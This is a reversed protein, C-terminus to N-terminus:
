PFLYALPRQDFIHLRSVIRACYGMLDPWFLFVMRRGFKVVM